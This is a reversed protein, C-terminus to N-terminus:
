TNCTISARPQTPQANDGPGTEHEVGPNSSQESWLNKDPIKMEESTQERKRDVTTSNFTSTCRSQCHGLKVLAEGLVSSSKIYSCITRWKPGLWHLCDYYLLCAQRKFGKMNM